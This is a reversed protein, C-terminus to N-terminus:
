ADRRPSRPAAPLFPPHLHLPVCRGLEIFGRTDGLHDELAPVDSSLSAFLFGRYEAFRAVPQMHHSDADFAAAYDGAAKDKIAVNCGRSDYSWGHYRCVHVRRNGRREHCVLAGKHRCSNHVCHLAGDQDRM